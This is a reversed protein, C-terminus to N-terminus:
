PYTEMIAANYATRATEYATRTTEYATRNGSILATYFERQRAVVVDFAVDFATRDLHPM